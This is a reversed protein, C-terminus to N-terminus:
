RKSRAVVKITMERLFRAPQALTLSTSQICIAIRTFFPSQSRFLRMRSKSPLISSIKTRIIRVIPQSQSIVKVNVAKVRAYTVQPSTTKTSILSTSPSYGTHDRTINKGLEVKDSSRVRTVRASYKFKHRSFPPLFSATRIPFSHSFQEPSLSCHTHSSFQYFM